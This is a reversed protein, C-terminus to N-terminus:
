TSVAGARVAHISAIRAPGHAAPRDPRLEAAECNFQLWREIHLM